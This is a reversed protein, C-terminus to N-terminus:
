EEHEKFISDPNNSAQPKLDANKSRTAIITSIFLAVFFASFLLGPVIHGKIFCIVACVIMIVSLLVTLININSQKASGYVDKIQNAGSVVPRNKMFDKQNNEM